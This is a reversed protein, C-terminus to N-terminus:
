PYPSSGLSMGIVSGQSEKPELIFRLSMNLSEVYHEEELDADYLIFSFPMRGRGQTDLMVTKETFAHSSSISRHGKQQWQQDATVIYHYGYPDGVTGMADESRMWVRVASIGPSCQVDLQMDQKVYPFVSGAEKLSVDEPSVNMSGNSMSAICSPVLTLTLHVDRQTFNEGDMASGWQFCCFLIIGLRKMFM